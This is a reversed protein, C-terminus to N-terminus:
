RAHAGGGPFKRGTQPHIIKQPPQQNAGMNGARFGCREL